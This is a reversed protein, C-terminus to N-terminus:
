SFLEVWRLTVLPLYLTQNGAQSCYVISADGGVVDASVRGGALIGGTVNKEGGGSFVVSGTVLIIGYWHFGGNIDLDGDVLLIGCGSTGGALKVYTSSTNFYVLNRQNCSSATQPTAGPVPTGWAMNTMTASNVNYAYKPNQSLQRVITSIELGIGSNEVIPPAGTITPRGNQSVTAQTLIGPVDGGGCQDMGQITTSNGQITTPAKTYLAAPILIPPIRVAEIKISKEAGSSTRGESTIVYINEGVSTNEELAGDANSDGWRLINGSPDLKHAITVAYDLSSTLRDYRFHNSNGSQYGKASVRAETGVFATWGANTPFTDSIPSASASTQLRSRGDEVGAEAVYFVQKASRDNSTIRLETTTSMMAGLSLVVLVMLVLLSYVLVSGRDNGACSLRRFWTGKRM